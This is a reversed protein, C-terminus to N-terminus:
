SSFRIFCVEGRIDNLRVEAKPNYNKLQKILREVTM